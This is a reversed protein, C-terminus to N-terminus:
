EVVELGIAHAIAPITMHQNVTTQSMLAGTAVLLVRSLEGKKMKNFVYSYTVLASSAPGSAGAFVPQSDIDYLMVGCDDYNHSLDMGYQTQMYEILIKKGYVGLDGTLILDYYMPERKLEALHCYITDAAAPAMVAGM